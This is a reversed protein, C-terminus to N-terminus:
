LMGNYFILGMQRTPLTVFNNRGHPCFNLLESCFGEFTHKKNNKDKKDFDSSKYWYTYTQYLDDKTSMPGWNVLKGNYIVRSTSLYHNSMTQLMNLVFRAMIALNEIKQEVLARTVIIKRYNDRMNTITNHKKDKMFLPLNYLLNYYTKLGACDNGLASIVLRAFYNNKNNGCLAVVKPNKAVADYMAKYHNQRREDKEPALVNDVNSTVFLNIYNKGNVTDSYMKRVRSIPGTTINKLKGKQDVGSLSTADELAAVRKDTVLTNYKGLIDEVDYVHVYNTKGHIPLCM